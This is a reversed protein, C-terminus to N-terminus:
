AQGYILDGPRYSASRCCKFKEDDLNPLGATSPSIGEDDVSMNRYIFLMYCYCTQLRCEAYCPWFSAITGVAHGLEVTLGQVPRATVGHCHDIAVVPKAVHIMCLM